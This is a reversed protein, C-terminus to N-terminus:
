FPTIPALSPSPTQGDMNINGFIIKTGFAVAIALIATVITSYNLSFGYLKLFCFLFM